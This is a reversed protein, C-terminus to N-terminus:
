VLNLYLNLPSSKSIKAKFPNKEFSAKNVEPLSVDQVLEQAM